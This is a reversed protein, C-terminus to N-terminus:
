AVHPSILRMTSMSECVRGPNRSAAARVGTWEREPSKKEADTGLIAAFQHGGRAGRLHQVEVLQAMFERNLVAGAVAAPDAAM